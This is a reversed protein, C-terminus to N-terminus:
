TPTCRSAPSATVPMPSRCASVRVLPEPEVHLTLGEVSRVRVRAGPDVAVDSRAQWTEGQLRVRGWPTCPEVVVAGLGLITNIGVLPARRKSWWLSYVIAVLEWAIAASFGVGNWPHPLLLLLVLGVLLALVSEKYGFVGRCAVNL